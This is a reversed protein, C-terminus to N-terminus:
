QRTKLYRRVTPVSVGYIEALEKQTTGENYKEVMHDVQTDTLKPARGGRREQVRNPDVKVRAM